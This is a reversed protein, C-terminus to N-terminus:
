CNPFLLSIKTGIGVESQIAITGGHEDLIRRTIALGLGSGKGIPKTSFFPDFVQAQLEAPIGPGSDVVDVVLRAEPDALLQARILVKGGEPSADVANGAVNAVAEVFRDSDLHAHCGEDVELEIVVNKQLANAGLMSRVEDLANLIDTRGPRFPTEQTLTLLRETVKGIRQLGERMLALPQSAAAANKADLNEALIDLCNMVGQLPNRVLHAVGTAIEGVRAMRERTLAIREHVLRAEEARRCQIIGSLVNAVAAILEVENPDKARDPASYLNLVGFVQDGKTIPACYHAHPGESALRRTHCCDDSRVFMSKRTQAVMGCVCDGLPIRACAKLTRAPMNRHAVPVMSQGNEEALFIISQPEFTTWPLTALTDLVKEFLAELTNPELALRLIQNLVVQTRESRALADEALRQETIDRTTHLYVPRGAPTKLPTEYVGSILIRGHETDNLECETSCGRACAKELPCGPFAEDHGHVIRPCHGGIIAEVPIGLSDKVAQNAMLVTHQSDILMVYYPFADLVTQLDAANRGLCIPPNAEQSGMSAPLLM